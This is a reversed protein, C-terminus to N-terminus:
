RFTGIKAIEDTDINEIEAYLDALNEAIENKGIAKLGKYLYFISDTLEKRTNVKYFGKRMANVMTDLEKAEM